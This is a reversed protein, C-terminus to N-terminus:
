TEVKFEYFNVMIYLVLFAPQMGEKQIVPTKGSAGTQIGELQEDGAQKDM